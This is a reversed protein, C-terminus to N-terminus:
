ARLTAYGTSLPPANELKFVHGKDIKIAHSVLLESLVQIPMAVESESSAFLSVSHYPLSLIAQDEAAFLQMVTEPLILGVHM